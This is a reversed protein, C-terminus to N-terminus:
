LIDKKMISNKRWKSKRQKWVKIMSESMSTPKPIVLTDFWALFESRIIWYENELGYRRRELMTALKKRVPVGIRELVWLDRLVTVYHVDFLAALKSITTTPSECLIRIEAFMRHVVNGHHSRARAFDTISIDDNMVSQEKKLDSM